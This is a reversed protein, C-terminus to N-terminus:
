RSSIDVRFRVDPGDVHRRGDADLRMAKCTSSPVLPNYVVVSVDSTGSATLPTVGTALCILGYTPFLALSILRIM